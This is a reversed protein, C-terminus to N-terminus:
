PNSKSYLNAFTVNLLDVKGIFIVDVKHKNQVDCRGRDLQVNQHRKEVASVNGECLAM